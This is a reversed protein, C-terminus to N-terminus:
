RSGKTIGGPVYLLHKTSDPVHYPKLIIVEADQHPPQHVLVRHNACSSMTIILILLLLKQTIQKMIIFLLPHFHDGLRCIGVIGM